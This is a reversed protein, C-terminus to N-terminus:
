NSELAQIEEVIATMRGVKRDSRMAKGFNSPDSETVISVIGDEILKTAVEPNETLLKSKNVSKTVDTKKKDM